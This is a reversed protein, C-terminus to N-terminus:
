RGFGGRVVRPEPQVGHHLEELARLRIDGVVPGASAGPVWDGLDAVAEVVRDACRTPEPARGIGLGEIIVVNGGTLGHVGVSWGFHRNWALVVKRGRYCPIESSLTLVADFAPGQWWEVTDAEVTAAVSRIYEVVNDAGAPRLAGNMIRGGGEVFGAAYHGASEHM